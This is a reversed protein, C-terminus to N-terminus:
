ETACTGARWSARHTWCWQEPCSRVRQELIRGFTETVMREADRRSLGPPHEIPDDVIVDYSGGRNRITLVPLLPANTNLSLSAPVRSMNYPVGLFTIPMIGSDWTLDAGMIVVNGSKLLHVAKMAGSISSDLPQFGSKPKLYLDRYARFQAIAWGVKRTPRHWLYSPSACIGKLAFPLIGLNGYHGTVLIVGRGGGLAVAIRERNKVTIPPWRDPQANAFRLLDLASLVTHQFSRIAIRKHVTAPENPYCLRLNRLALNRESRYFWYGIRGLSHAIILLALEPFLRSARVFLHTLKLHGMADDGSGM